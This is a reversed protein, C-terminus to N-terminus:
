QVRADPMLGPETTVVKVADVVGGIQDQWGGGTTLAQELRLVAYFLERQTLQRGMMRAIVSCIAAGMISSTGLGSGKPVAALTTLEIGGGFLELMKRLTVDAPWDGVEPSFGSLALAAKVLGYESGAKSFDLLTDLQTIEIRTGLDISGIRILLEPIVRGYCHIPPQGNLDIAANVVCGGHELSYPPTDSWGGALDLRAPARGWVIEDSRLRHVPHQSPSDGSIITRGLDDFASSQARRAWSLPSAHEGPLLGLEGLWTREQATLLENLRSLIQGASELSEVAHGVSHIIRAFVFAQMGADGHERHYWMAEALVQHLTAAPDPSRALVHALDAASFGSGQRFLRRLSRLVEGVRIASRRAHFTEPDALELIEAASYRDAALWAQGDATPGVPDFTWLWQSLEAASRVAPFVRANWLSRQEVPINAPWVDDSKAGILELWQSMPRNCFTAGAALSEKFGDRTGYYRVFWVEKGSRDRGPQVDLAAGAPLSLPARVDVGVVVNEGAVTLPAALTCGEVWAQRGVVGGGERIDNNISLVLSSQVVGRDERLLEVGSDIIQRTAGFHLFSCHPLVQATFPIKSLQRFLRDLLQDNWKSGSGRASNRHHEPTVDRGLACCIERYFDLGLTEIAGGVEGSWRAEGAAEGVGCSRLLAVATAADFAIVGIDLVSQGYRDIAQQREQEAVTPKQLYLRVAGGASQGNPVTCYVGHRAARQPAAHSGLGTIGTDAFRVASPDFSLLVDGATIVIQGNGAPTPPLALYAAIQRDFLTHSLASDSEGPVPIFIKGCPGYAPLRRSDGGAHVLLVRLQRLAALWDGPGAGAGSTRRLVECLCLVTSGGSGIRQQPPDAVVLVENVGALLGLKQRLKLQSEYAAAQAANPATVILFDWPRASPHM